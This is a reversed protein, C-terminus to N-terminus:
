YALDHANDFMKRLNGLNLMGFPEVEIESADRLIAYPAFWYEYAKWSVYNSYEKRKMGFARLLGNMRGEADRIPGIIKEVREQHEEPMGEKQVKYGIANRVTAELQAYFASEFINDGSIALDAEAILACITAAIEDDVDSAHMIEHPLTTYVWPDKLMKKDIRIRGDYVRAVGVRKNGLDAIEISGYEVNKWGLKGLAGVIEDAAEKLEKENWIEAHGKGSTMESAKLFVDYDNLLEDWRVRETPIKEM